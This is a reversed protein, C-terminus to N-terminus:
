TISLLNFKNLKWYSTLNTQGNVGVIDTINDSQNGEPYVTVIADDASVDGDFAQGYLVPLPDQAYVSSLMILVLIALLSFKSLVM